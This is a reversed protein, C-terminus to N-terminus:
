SPPKLATVSTPINQATVNYEQTKLTCVFRMMFNFTWRAHILRSCFFLALVASLSCKVFQPMDVQPRHRRLPHLVPAAKEGNTIKKLFAFSKKLPWFLWQSWLIVQLCCIYQHTWVRKLWTLDERACKVIKVCSLIEERRLKLWCIHLNSWPLFFFFPFKPYTTM